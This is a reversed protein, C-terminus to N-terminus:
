SVPAHDSLGDLPEAAALFHDNDCMWGTTVTRPRILGGPLPMRVTQVIPEVSAGCRPCTKM